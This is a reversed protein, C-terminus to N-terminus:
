NNHRSLEAEAPYRRKAKVEDVAKHRCKERANNNNQQKILQATGVCVDITGHRETHVHTHTYTHTHTHACAYYMCLGGALPSQEEDTQREKTQRHWPLHWAWREREASGM